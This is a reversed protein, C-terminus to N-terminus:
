PVAVPPILIEAPRTIDRFDQPEEDGKILGRSIQDRTAEELWPKLEAYYAPAVKYDMLDKSSEEHIKALLAPVLPSDERIDKMRKILPHVAFIIAKSRPLKRFAQRDIRLYLDGPDVTCKEGEPLQAINHLFLNNDDVIEWSSREFPANPDMRKLAREVSVLLKQNFQPVNLHVDYMSKGIKESLLYFGPFAVLGGVFYIHGDDHERAMLFDNETLRSIIKLGEVGEPPCGKAWQYREKTVHSYFGDLEEGDQTTELLRDFLTPYRTTMFEVVLELLEACAADNEPLSDIVNRGQEEIVRKKEALYWQYSSSIEIWNNPSLPQHAMTQYYPYRLTKNVYVYDRTRAASLSFNPLPEPLPFRASNMGGQAKNAHYISKLGHQNAPLPEKETPPSAPTSHSEDTQRQGKRARWAYFLGLLVIGVAADAYLSHPASKLDEM